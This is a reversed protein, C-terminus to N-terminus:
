LVRDEGSSEGVSDDGGGGGDDLSAGCGWDVALVGRSLELQVVGVCRQCLEEV